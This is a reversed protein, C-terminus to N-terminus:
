GQIVAQRKFNGNKGFFESYIPHQAADGKSLTESTGAIGFFVMTPMEHDDPNPKDMVREFSYSTFVIQGHTAQTAVICEDGTRLRGSLKEAQVAQSERTTWLDFFAGSGFLMAHERGHCNNFFFTLREGQRIMTPEAATRERRRANQPRSGGARSSAGTHNSRPHCLSCFRGDMGHKCKEAM